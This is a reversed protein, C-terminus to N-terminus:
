AIDGRKEVGRSVAKFQWGVEVSSPLIEGPMRHELDPKDYTGKGRRKCFKIKLIHGEERDM